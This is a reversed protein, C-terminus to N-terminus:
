MAWAPSVSSTDALETSGPESSRVAVHCHPSLEESMSVLKTLSGSGSGGFLGEIWGRSTSQAAAWM